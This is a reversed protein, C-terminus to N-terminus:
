GFQAAVPIPTGAFAGADIKEVTHEMGESRRERIKELLERAEHITAQPLHDESVSLAHELTLIGEPLTLGSM